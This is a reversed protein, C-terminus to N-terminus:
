RREHLQGSPVSAGTDLRTAIESYLFRVRGGKNGFRHGPIRDAEYWDLITGAAFGLLEGLEAATLMREPKM